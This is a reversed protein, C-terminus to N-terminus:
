EGRVTVFTTIDFVEDISGVHMIIGSAVPYEIQDALSVGDPLDGQKFIFVKDGVQVTGAILKVSEITHTLMVATVPYDTYVSVNHGQASDFAQSTYKKYIIEVGVLSDKLLSGILTLIPQRVVSVIGM